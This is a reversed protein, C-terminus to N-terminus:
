TSQVTIRPSIGPTFGIIKQVWIVRCPSKKDGHIETLQGYPFKILTIARTVTTCMCHRAFQLNFLM